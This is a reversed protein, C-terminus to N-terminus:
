ALFRALRSAHTEVWALSELARAGEPQAPRRVTDGVRVVVNMDGGELVFGSM